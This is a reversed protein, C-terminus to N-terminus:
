PISNQKGARESKGKEKQMETKLFRIEEYGCVM